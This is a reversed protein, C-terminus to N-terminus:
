ARKPISIPGSAVLARFQAMRADEAAQAASVRENAESNKLQRQQERRGQSHQMRAKAAAFSDDGGMIDGGGYLGGIDPSAERERAVTARLGLARGVVGYMGIVAMGGGDWHIFCPPAFITPGHCTVTCLM